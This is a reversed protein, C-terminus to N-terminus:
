QETDVETWGAPFGQLVEYESPAMRRVSLMQTVEQTLRIPKETMVIDKQKRGQLINEELEPMSSLISIQNKIAKELDPPLSKGRVSARDLLSQLQERSLFFKLPSSTELVQSLTSEEVDNHHELTNQMWYEGHYAMGSNMWRKYSYKSIKDTIATLSDRFMRLLWGGLSDQNLSNQSSSFYGM